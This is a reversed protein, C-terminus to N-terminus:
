EKMISQIYLGSGRGKGLSLIENACWSLGRPFSVDKCMVMLWPLDHFM